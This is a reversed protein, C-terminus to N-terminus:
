LKNLKIAILKIRNDVCQSTYNYCQKGSVRSGLLFCSNLLQHESLGSINIFHSSLSILEVGQKLINDSHYLVSIDTARFSKNYYTPSQYIKKRKKSGLESIRISEHQSKPYKLKIDPLQYRHLKESNHMECTNRKYWCTCNKTTTWGCM